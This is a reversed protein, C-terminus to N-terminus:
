SLVMNGTYCSAWYWTALTVALETGHQWSVRDTGVRAVTVARTGVQPVADVALALAAEWEEAAAFLMNVECTSLYFMSVTDHMNDRVKKCTVESSVM